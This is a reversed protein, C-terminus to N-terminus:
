QCTSSRALWLRTRERENHSAVNANGPSSPLPSQSLNLLEFPRAAFKGNGDLASDGIGVAPGKAGDHRFVVAADLHRHVSYTRSRAGASM